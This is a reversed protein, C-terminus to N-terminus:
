SLMYCLLALRFSQHQVQSLCQFCKAAQALATPDPEVGAATALCYLQIAELTRPSMGAYDSAAVTLANLDCSVAM